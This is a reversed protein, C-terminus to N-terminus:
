HNSPPSGNSHGFLEHSVPPQLSAVAAEGTEVERQEFSRVRIKFVVRRSRDLDERGDKLIPDSSGRGSASLLNLFCPYAIKSETGEEKLKLLSTQVVSMARNQSLEMNHIDKHEPNKGSSDAHGEVVISNLEDRFRQSCAVHALSPIFQDLFQKGKNSLDSGDVTFQMLQEPVVILLSLFDKQDEEV